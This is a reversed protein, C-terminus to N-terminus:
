TCSTGKDSICSRTAWRRITRRREPRRRRCGNWRNTCSRYKKRRFLFATTSTDVIIFECVTYNARVCRVIRPKAKVVVVEEDHEEDEDEEEEEDPESKQVYQKNNIQKRKSRKPPQLTGRDGNWDSYGSSDSSDSISSLSMVIDEDESDDQESPATLEPEDNASYDYRLQYTRGTARNRPKKTKKERSHSTSANAATNIM